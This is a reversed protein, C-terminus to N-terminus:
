LWKHFAHRANRIKWGLNTYGLQVPYNNVHTPGDIYLYGEKGLEKMGEYTLVQFLRQGYFDPDIVGISYHGLSMNFQQELASPKKWATFGAIREGAQAVWIWDCYGRCASDAWRRYVEIAKESPIAPDAHFRGFHRAFARDAVNILQELDDPSALRILFDKDAAPQVVAEFPPRAFDYVYELLTDMLGFGLRELAHILGINDTDTKCLVFRVGQREFHRMVTELLGRIPEEEVALADTLLIETVAACKVGLIESDWPLDATVALGRIEHDDQAVFFSAGAQGIAQRLQEIRIEAADGVITEPLHPFPRRGVSELFPRLNAVAESTLNLAQVEMM